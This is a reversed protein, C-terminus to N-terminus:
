DEGHPIEFYFNSGPEARLEAIAKYFASRSIGLEQCFDKIKTRYRWGRKRTALIWNYVYGKVTLKGTLYQEKLDSVTLRVHPTTTTNM